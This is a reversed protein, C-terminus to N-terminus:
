HAELKDLFIGAKWKVPSVEKFDSNLYLNKKKFFIVTILRNGSRDKLGELIKCKM